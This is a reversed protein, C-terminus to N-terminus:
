DPDSTGHPKTGGAWGLARSVATASTQLAPIIRRPIARENPLIMSLAACVTNTADRIPASVGATNPSLWADLHCYDDRRIQALIGDLEHRTPQHIAATPPPDAILWHDSIDSDFIAAVTADDAYAALLLGSSNIKAPMREGTQTVNSVAGRARLREIYLVETGELVALQTNHGVATQLDQMFPLAVRRIHAVTSSRYGLEWLRVSAQVLGDSNRELLGVRVLEGVYRYVTPAPIGTHDAIEAVSSAPRTPSFSELIRMVRGMYSDDPPATM